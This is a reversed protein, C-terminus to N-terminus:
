HGNGYKKWGKFQLSKVYAADDVKSYSLIDYNVEGNSIMGTNDNSSMLFGFQKYINGYDNIQICFGVKETQYNYIM